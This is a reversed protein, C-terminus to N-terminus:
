DSTSEISDQAAATIPVPVIARIRTGRGPASEIEFTGNLQAVRERMGALGVGSSELASGRRSPLPLGCGADSVEACVAGQKWALRVNATRSGSYRHVNTLGEQVLRFLATEIERGLRGFNKPIDVQVSIGSRDSFGRAYWRLASTLGAEDLMPPHMLYSITRIERVADEVLSLANCVLESAVEDQPIFRRLRGLTMKLAALTQGASEHLERAIHRREEDRARMLEQMLRHLSEDRRNLTQKSRPTPM